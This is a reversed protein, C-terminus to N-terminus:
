AAARDSQAGDLAAQLVAFLEAVQIPKPVLGDMGAAMYEDRQHAMANATLAVIPTRRRGTAREAARIARAASPGDLVPMQVDMLIIDWERHRWATVAEAGDCVIVPDLGAQELLTRLVLRNISSERTVKKVIHLWTKLQNHTPTETTLQANDHIFRGDGSLGCGAVSM